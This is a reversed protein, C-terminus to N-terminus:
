FDNNKLPIFKIYLILKNIINRVALVTQATATAYRNLNLAKFFDVVVSMWYVLINEWLHMNQHTFKGEVLNINGCLANVEKYWDM